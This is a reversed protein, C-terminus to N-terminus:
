FHAVLEVAKAFAGHSSFQAAAFDHAPMGRREALREIGLVGQLLAAHGAHIEDSAVSDFQQAADIVCHAGIAVVVLNQLQLSMELRLWSLAAPKGCRRKSSSSRSWARCNATAIPAPCMSCSQKWERTVRGWIIWPTCTAWMCAKMPARRCPASRQRSSKLERSKLELPEPIQSAKSATPLAAAPSCKSSKGM